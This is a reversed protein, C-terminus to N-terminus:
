RGLCGVQPWLCSHTRVRGRHIVRSGRHIVRPGRHIVRSIISNPGQVRVDGFMQAQAHVPIHMYVM